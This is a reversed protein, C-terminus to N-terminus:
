QGICSADTDHEESDDDGSSTCSPNSPKPALARLPLPGVRLLKDRLMPLGVGHKM